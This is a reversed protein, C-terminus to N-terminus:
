RGWMEPPMLVEEGEPDIPKGHLLTRREAAFAALQERLTAPSPQLIEDSTRQDM